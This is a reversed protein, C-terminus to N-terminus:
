GKAKEAKIWADLRQELLDLPLPGPLLIQDHFRRIDFRPGLAAQARKRLALIRLEGIKYALAQGPWSIYRDLEVDINKAALATNDTFCARAQDRTWGLWHVGTDAVLRCARWMEMSLRGFREYPDRYIGMEEGLGESYLAWGEVFADFGGERRFFPLDTREQALAIQLHHGPIAEHLALAPLEYLPRQDLHSTNVMFGGAIGQQPSGQWYRASTYGDAIEAPVPRVGFTLRPLTAFNAPLKDDIRKVIESADALLAEPTRAYFRPDSRLYALFDAFSGKFGTEAIVGDMRARIRAVESVGLAHIQDPTLGTTTHHRVLWAYYRAGDPLDRAALSAPAKPLYEDRLMAAYAREQPKVGNAALDLVRARLAAQDAAPITAPLEAFPLLLPSQDAPQDARIRAAKAAVEAVYRPQLFGTAIGRRANAIETEYYAPLAQLRAIWAEADTLSHIATSRAVYDANDFPGNDTTFPEREQDFAIGQLDDDVTWALDDRNLADEPPLRVDKLAALRKHFGELAAKRAAVAAPSDDPWVRLAAPDGELGASIPDARKQYRDFDAIVAHLAQVPAAKARAMAPAGISAAIAGLMAATLWPRLRTM